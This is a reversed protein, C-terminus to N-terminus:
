ELDLLADPILSTAPASARLEKAAALTMESLEVPGYEFSRQRRRRLYWRLAPVAAVATGAALVALWLRSGDAEAGREGRKLVGSAAVMLQASRRKKRRTSESHEP